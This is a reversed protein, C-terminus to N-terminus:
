NNTTNGSLTEADIRQVIPAQAINNLGALDLLKVWADALTLDQPQARRMEALTSVADYWLRQNIYLALREQPTAQQLQRTFEPTSNVRKILGETSSGELYQSNCIPTVMWHYEKGIELPHVNAFAPMELSVVGQLADPVFRTKYVEDGNENELVFEMQPKPKKNSEQKDLSMSGLFTTYAASTLCVKSKQVLATVEICSGRTAGGERGGPTGRQPPQFNWSDPILRNPSSSGLQAQAESSVHLMLGLTLTVALTMRHLSRKIGVM